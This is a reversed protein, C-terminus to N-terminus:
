QDEYYTELEEEFIEEFNITIVDELHMMLDETTIYGDLKEILDVPSMRDKILQQIHEISM